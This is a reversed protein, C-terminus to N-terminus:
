DEEPGGTEMMQSLEDDEPDLPTPMELEDEFDLPELALAKYHDDTVQLESVAFDVDVRYPLGLFDDVAFYTLVTGSITPAAITAFDPVGYDSLRVVGESWPESPDESALKVRYQEEFAAPDNIVQFAPGQSIYNVARATEIAAEPQKLEPAITLLSALTSAEVEDEGVMVVYESDAGLGLLIQPIDDTM